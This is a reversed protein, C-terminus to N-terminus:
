PRLAPAITECVVSKALRRVTRAGVGDRASFARRAGGGDILVAVGDDIAIGDSLEGQAICAMFVPQRQPESSYHPCCSGALLGIGHTPTLGNGGSDSLAHEFWV